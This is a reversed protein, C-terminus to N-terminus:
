LLIGYRLLTSYSNIFIRMKLSCVRIQGDSAATALFQGNRSFQVSWISIRDKVYRDVFVSPNILDIWIKFEFPQLVLWINSGTELENIYTKGDDRLGVALRQGDPSMKICYVEANFKFNHALQLDLSRNVEPNYVVSWRVPEPKQEPSIVSDNPGPHIPTSTMQSSSVRAVEPESLKNNNRTLHSPRIFPANAIRPRSRQRGRFVRRWLPEFVSAATSTSGQGPSTM